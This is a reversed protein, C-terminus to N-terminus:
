YCVQCGNGGITCKVMDKYQETVEHRKGYKAYNSFTRYTGFDIEYWIYKNFEKGAYIWLIDTANYPVFQRVYAVPEKVYGLGLEFNKACPLKQRKNWDGIYANSKTEQFGFIKGGRLEWNALWNLIAQENSAVVQKVERIRAASRYSSKISVELIGIGGFLKQVDDEADFECSLYAVLVPMGKNAICKGLVVFADNSVGYSEVYMYGAKLDKKDVCKLDKIKM